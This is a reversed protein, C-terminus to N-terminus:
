RVRFWAIGSLRYRCCASKEGMWRKGFAYSTYQYGRDSHWSAPTMGDM